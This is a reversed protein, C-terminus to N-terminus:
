PEYVRVVPMKKSTNLHQFDCEVGGVVIKLGDLLPNNFIRSRARREVRTLADGVRM